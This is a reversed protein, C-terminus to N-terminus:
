MGGKLWFRKWESVFSKLKDESGFADATARRMDRHRLLSEVYDRKLNAFPEFRVKPAGKEIFRALSWATRYKLRREADTGGYFEAYDMLMLAPLSEALRELREAGVDVGWDASEEDEFYQAYGENLWPSASVMSCAYSLYQHFAEHRITKM